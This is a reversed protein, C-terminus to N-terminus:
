PAYPKVTSLGGRVAYAADIHPTNLDQGLLGGTGLVPGGGYGGSPPTVAVAVGAENLIHAMAINSGTTGKNAPNPRIKM